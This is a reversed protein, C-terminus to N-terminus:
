MRSPGSLSQRRCRGKRGNSISQQDARGCGHGETQDEVTLQCEKINQSVV